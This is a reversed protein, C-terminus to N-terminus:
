IFLIAAVIIGAGGLVTFWSGDEKEFVFESPSNPDYFIKVPKGAEFDQILDKPFSRNTSIQQGAHTKFSFTATYTRKHKKYSDIPEVIATQGLSKIRSISSRETFGFVVFAIGVAVGLIKFIKSRTAM